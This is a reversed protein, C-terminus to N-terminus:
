YMERVNEIDTVITLESASGSYSTPLTFGM